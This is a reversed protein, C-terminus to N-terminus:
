SLTTLDCLLEKHESICNQANQIYYITKREVDIQQEKTGQQNYLLYLYETAEM